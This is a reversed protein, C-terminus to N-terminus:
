DPPRERLTREPQGAAALAMDYDLFYAIGAILGDRETAVTYIPTTTEAGSAAGRATWRLKSLARHKDLVVIEDVAIEHESHVSLISAWLRRVEERGRYTGSEPWEPATVHVVDEAHYAMFQDLGGNFAEAIGLAFQEM